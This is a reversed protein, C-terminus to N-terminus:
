MIEDSVASGGFASNLDRNGSSVNVSTRRGRAAALNSLGWQVGFQEMDAQGVELFRAEIQVQRLERYRMLITRVRDINSGTNTVILQGAGLALTAGPVSDFPVGARELFARVASEVELQPPSSSGAGSKSAASTKSEQLGPLGTMRVLASRNVAFFETRLMAGPESMPRLVVADPEMECRYGVSQALYFLVRELSMERLTITVKPEEGKPALRVLNVAMGQADAMAALTELAQGLPMADFSVRPLQVAALRAALSAPLAAVVAEPSAAGATQAHAAGRWPMIALILITIHASVRM